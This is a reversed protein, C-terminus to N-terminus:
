AVNYEQEVVNRHSIIYQTMKMNNNIQIQKEFVNIPSKTFFHRMGQYYALVFVEFNYESM